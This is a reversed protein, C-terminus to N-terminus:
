YTQGRSARHCKRLASSPGSDRTARALRPSVRTSSWAAPIRPPLPIGLFLARARHSGPGGERGPFGGRAGGGRSAGAPSEGAASTAPLEERRTSLVVSGALASLGLLGIWLATTTGRLAMALVDRGLQDSGLLYVPGFKEGDKEARHGPSVFEANKAGDRYDSAIAGTQALLGVYIYAVFVIVSLMAVHSKKL